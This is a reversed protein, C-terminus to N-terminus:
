NERVATGSRQGPGNTGARASLRLPDAERADATPAAKAWGVSFGNSYRMDVYAIEAARGSVVPLATRVFRNLREEIQRRGLRVEVGNALKLDVAGRPDLNLTTLRTGAEILQGQMSLYLQAVEWESGEPGNLQPLEPPVHRADRIFLEGRTNLLGSSGWRAAANEEVIEVRLSDPWSREVRAREVWPLAEVGRRVEGLNVSLFGATTAGSKLVASVAQEVQAPTVRQFRGAVDVKRVPRDLLVVLGYSLTVALVFLGAAAALRGWKLSALPQSGGAGKRRNQRRNGFLGM